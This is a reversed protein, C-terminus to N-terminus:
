NEGTKIVSVFYYFVHSLNHESVLINPNVQCKIYIRINGRYERVAYQRKDLTVNNERKKM